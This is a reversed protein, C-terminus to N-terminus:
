KKLSVQKKNQQHLQIQYRVEITDAKKSFVIPYALEISFKQQNLKTILAFFDQPSKIHSSVTFNYTLYEGGKKSDFTITSNALSLGKIYSTAQSSPLFGLVKYESKLTNKDRKKPELLTNNQIITNFIVKNTHKLLVKSTAYINKLKTQMDLISNSTKIFNSVFISSDQNIELDKLLADYPVVDFLMQINQVIIQNNKTHNPLQINIPQTAQIEQQLVQNKEVKPTTKEIKTRTNESNKTTFKNNLVVIALILTIFAIIYWIYSSKDEKKARPSIFNHDTISEKQIIKDMYNEISISSYTVPMMLVDQLLTVQEQSMPKITYLIEIHELFEVENNKLYYEEITDNMFEQIELFNLEEYLKQGVIDDEEIFTEDQTSEFPTLSKIKHYTLEKANNFIIAYIINNYILFNLSNNKTNNELYEEIITYPSLIFDIGTEKYYSDLQVIETKPIVVSHNNGLKIADFSTADLEKTPIIHQNPSELLSTIYTLNVNKQLTNIANKADDGLTDEVKLFSLQEEKLVRNNQMTKYDVKLQKDQQLINIFQKKDTKFV